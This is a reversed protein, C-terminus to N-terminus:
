EPRGPRVESSGVLIRCVGLILLDDVVIVCRTPIAHDLSRERLPCPLRGGRCARPEQCPERRQQDRGVIRCHGRAPSPPPSKRQSAGSPETRQRPEPVAHLLSTPLPQLPTM